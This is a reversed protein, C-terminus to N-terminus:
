NMEKVSRKLVTVGMWDGYAYMDRFQIDKLNQSRNAPVSYM